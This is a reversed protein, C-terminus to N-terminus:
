YRDVTKQVRYVNKKKKTRPAFKITQSPAKPLTMFKLFFFGRVVCLRVSLNDSPDKHNGGLNVQM